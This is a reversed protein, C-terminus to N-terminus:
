TAEVRELIESVLSSADVSEGVDPLSALLMALNTATPERLDRFRLMWGQDGDDRAVLARVVVPPRSADSYLALKLEDGLQISDDPLVRMGGASLDSAVLGRPKGEASVLIQHPYAKRPTSRRERGSSAARRPKRSMSM